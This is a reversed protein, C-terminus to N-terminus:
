VFGLTGSSCLPPTTGLMALNVFDNLYNYCLYLKCQYKILLIIVIKNVLSKNFLLTQNYNEFIKKGIRWSFTTKTSM